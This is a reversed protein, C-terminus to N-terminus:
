HAEELAQAFEAVTAFREQPKKALAKFVVQEIPATITPKRERLRPPPETLHSMMLALPGTGEFPCAGCLWEYVVIGLSYQDSVPYADGMSQEPAMYLATGVVNQSSRSETGHAAVAIGFDCLVITDSSVVLMNGPKVDRHVIRNDHAYQLAGGVQKVYAIVMEPPLVSRRPHLHLLSGKPAYDMVLFPQANHEEIGFELVRVIHPHKLKAITQAEKLFNRLDREPMRVALLKIAAETKLYVHEGLYVTAFGGQGLQRIIRYNGVQQNSRDLM